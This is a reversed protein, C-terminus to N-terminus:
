LCCAKKKKKPNKKRWERIYEERKQAESNGSVPTKPKDAGM